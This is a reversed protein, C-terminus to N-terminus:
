RGEDETGLLGVLKMMPEFDGCAPMYRTEEKDAALCGPSYIGILEESEAFCKEFSRCNGCVKRVGYESM